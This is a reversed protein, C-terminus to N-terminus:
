LFKYAHVELRNFEGPIISKVVLGTVELKTGLTTHQFIPEFYDKNDMLIKTDFILVLDENCSGDNISYFGLKSSSQRIQKVTGRVTIIQGIHNNPNVILKNINTYYQNYSM